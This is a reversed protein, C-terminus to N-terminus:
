MIHRGVREEEIDSFPEVPPYYDPYDIFHESLKFEAELEDFMDPTLITAINYSAVDYGKKTLFDIIPDFDIDYTKIIHIIRLSKHFYYKM